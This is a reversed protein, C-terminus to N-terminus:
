RWDRPVPVQRAAKTCLPKPPWNGRNVHNIRQQRLWRACQEQKEPSGLFAAWLVRRAVFESWFSNRSFATGEPKEPLHIKEGERFADRRSDEWVPGSLTASDLLHLIRLNGAFLAKLETHLQTNM